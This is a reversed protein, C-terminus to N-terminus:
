QCLETLCYKASARGAASVLVSGNPTVDVSHVTGTARGAYALDLSCPLSFPMLFKM